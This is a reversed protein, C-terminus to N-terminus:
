TTTQAAADGDSAHREHGCRRRSLALSPGGPRYLDDAREGRTVGIVGDRADHEVLNRSLEALWEDDLVLRAAAARDTRAHDGLGLRVAVGNQQM